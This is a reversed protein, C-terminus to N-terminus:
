YSIKLSIGVTFPEGYSLYLKNEYNPPEVGFYFGRTAYKENFINKGWLSISTNKNINYDLGTNAIMYPESMQNHSDSFYFKDKAEINFNLKLENIYKIFGLSISYRPAHAAERESFEFETNEDTFYSYSDIKTKLYGIKLNTKFDKEKTIAIDFNFGYNRGSSANSTYFYFSNPNLPDQQSSLSVQLDKRNMNFAFLNFEINNTNYRYGLDINNNFEPKFTRNDNSLRPNQNVGGAKFGKSTSFFINSNDSLKYALSFKGGSFEDNIKIKVGTTDYTTYYTYYNFYEHFHTSIYNIGIQEYRGNLTISFKDFNNKIETYIAANQIDFESKLGADEGGLIWGVANDWEELKKLFLGYTLVTEFKPMKYKSTSRLEQTTMLRTRKELQTYDYSWGNVNYPPLSWFYDNGWDSDYSHIMESHLYTSIHNLKFDDKKFQNNLSLAFLNQSDEGPNNSYTTDPNNNPSWADYGNDLKTNIITLLSNFFDRETYSLKIKSFLENKSNTYKNLYDNYLFGDQRSHYLFHNAYLKDDIIPINISTSAKFLKDNGTTIKFTNKNNKYPNNTRINILGAMSNHGYAYSQPGQYVEIQNVDDLFIGMGIGSLDIDDIVTGVYYMPGGEGAYQSREGIGRIQFYRQRSSGSAYNLNPIKRIVDDFHTESEKFENVIQVDNSSEQKSINGSLEKIETQNLSITKTDMLIVNSKILSSITVLQTNYGIKQLTVLEDKSKYLITFNGMQDTKFSDTDSFIFVNYIPNNDPGIVKGSVTKNELSFIISTLLIISIFSKKIMTEEALM